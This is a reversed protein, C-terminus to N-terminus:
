GNLTGRIYKYLTVAQRKLLEAGNDNNVNTLYYDAPWFQLATETIDNPNRDPSIFLSGDANLRTVRVMIGRADRWALAEPPLRLNPCLAVAVGEERAEAVCRKAFYDQGFSHKMEKGVDILVQIQERTMDERKVEPLRGSTICTKLIMAGVDYIGVTRYECKQVYEKMALTCETKGHRARGSFGILVQETM